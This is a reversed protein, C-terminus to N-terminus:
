RNAHLFRTLVLFLAETGIRDSRFLRRAVHQENL